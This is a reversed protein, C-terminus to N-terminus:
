KSRRRVAHLAALGMCIPVWCAISLWASRGSRVNCGCGADPPAPAESLFVCTEPLRGSRNGGLDVLELSYCQRQDTEGAFLGGISFQAAGAEHVGTAVLADSPATRRLFFVIPRDTADLEAHVDIWYGSRDEAGCTQERTEHVATIGLSGNNSPPITDAEAGITLGFTRFPDRSSDFLDVSILPGIPPLRVELMALRREAGLDISVTGSHVRARTVNLHCHPVFLAGGRPVEGNEGTLPGGACTGADRCAAAERAAALAVLVGAAILVRVRTKDSREAIPRSKM